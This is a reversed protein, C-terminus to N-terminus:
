MASHPPNTYVILFLLNILIIILWLRMKQKKSREKLVKYRGDLSKIMLQRLETAQSSDFTRMPICYIKLPAKTIIVVWKRIEIIRIVVQWQHERVWSNKDNYFRCGQGSFSSFIPGVKKRRLNWKLKLVVAIFFPLILYTLIDLNMTESIDPLIVFFHSGCLVSVKVIIGELIFILFFGGVPTLYLIEFIFKLLEGYTTKLKVTIEDM